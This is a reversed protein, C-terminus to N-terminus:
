KEEKLSALWALIEELVSLNLEYYIYKGQKDDTVLGANKMISLHHSISAGTMQFQEVIEGATMKQKKLLEIIQRRTPDSLAKFSEQFGMKIIVKWNM